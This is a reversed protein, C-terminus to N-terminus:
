PMKRYELTKGIVSTSGDEIYYSIVVARMLSDLMKEIRWEQYLNYYDPFNTTLVNTYFQYQGSYDVSNKRFVAASGTVFSLTDGTFSLTDGDVSVLEWTGYALERYHNYNKQCSSFSAAIILVAALQMFRKM